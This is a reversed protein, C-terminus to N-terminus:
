MLVSRKSSGDVPRTTCSTACIFEGAINGPSEQRESSAPVVFERLRVPIWLVQVSSAAPARRDPSSRKLPDAREANRRGDRQHEVKHRFAGGVFARRSSVFSCGCFFVSIVFFSAPEM